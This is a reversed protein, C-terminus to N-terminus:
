RRQFGLELGWGLILDLVRRHRYTLVKVVYHARKSPIKKKRQREREKFTEESHSRLSLFVILKGGNRKVGRTTM